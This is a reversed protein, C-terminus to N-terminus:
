GPQHASDNSTVAARGIAPQGDVEVPTIVAAAEGVVSHVTDAGPELM